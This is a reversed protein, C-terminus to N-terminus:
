GRRRRRQEAPYLVDRELYRRLRVTRPEMRGPAAALHAVVADVRILLTGEADRRWRGSHRAAFADEPETSHLARQLDSGSIWVSRGDDEIRLPIGAFAHHRGEERRWHWARLLRLVDDLWRVAIWPVFHTAVAVVIALGLLLPLGIGWRNLVWCVVAIGVTLVLARQWSSKM